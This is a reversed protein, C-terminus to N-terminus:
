PKHQMVQSGLPKPLIWADMRQFRRVSCRVSRMQVYRSMSATMVDLRHSRSVSSFSAASCKKQCTQMM